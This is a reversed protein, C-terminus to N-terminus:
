AGDRRDPEINGRNPHRSKEIWRNLMDGSRGVFPEGQKDENAGPAEGVFAIPSDPNGNWPVANTRTDALPCATCSDIHLRLFNRRQDVTKAKIAANLYDPVRPEKLRRPGHGNHEDGDSQATDTTAAPPVHWGGRGNCEDCWIKLVEDEDTPDPITFWGQAHCNDCHRWAGPRTTIYGIM